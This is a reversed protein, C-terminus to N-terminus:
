QKCFKKESLIEDLVSTESIMTVSPSCLPPLFGSLEIDQIDLREFVPITNSFATSVKPLRDFLRQENYVALSTSSLLQEFFHDPSWTREACPLKLAGYPIIPLCKDHEEIGKVIAVMRSWSQTLREQLELFQEKAAVMMAAQRSKAQAMITSRSPCTRADSLGNRSGFLRSERTPDTSKSKEPMYLEDAELLRKSVRLIRERYLGSSRNLRSGEERRGHQEKQDHDGRMRNAIAESLVRLTADSEEGRKKLIYELAWPDSLGGKQKFAKISAEKHEPTCWSAKSDDASSAKSDNASRQQHFNDIVYRKSSSSSSPFTSIQTKKNRSPVNCVSHVPAARRAAEMVPGALSEKRGRARGDGLASRAKESDDGPGLDGFECLISKLSIPHLFKIISFPGRRGRLFRPEFQSQLMRGIVSLKTKNKRSEQIQEVAADGVIGLLMSLLLIVTFLPLIFIMLQSVFMLMVSNSNKSVRKMATITPVDISGAFNVALTSTARYLSSVSEIQAGFFIVIVAALAVCMAILVAFFHLLDVSCAMLVAALGRFRPLYSTEAVIMLVLSITSLALMKNSSTLINEAEDIADLSGGFGQVGSLDKPLPWRLDGAPDESVIGYEAPDEIAAVSAAADKAGDEISEATGDNAVRKTMMFNAPYYLDELLDYHAELQLGSQTWLCYLGLSLTFLAHLSWVIQVQRMPNLVLAAMSGQFCIGRIHFNVHPYECLMRDYFVFLQSIIERIFFLFLLLLWTSYWISLTTFEEDIYFFSYPTTHTLVTFTGSGRTRRFEVRVNSLVLDDANWVLLRVKLAQTQEDLYLGQYLMSLLQLARAGTVGADFYFPYGGDDFGGVNLGEFPHLTHRGERLDTGSLNYYTGAFLNARYMNSSPRFVPDSGFPHHNGASEIFCPAELSRFRNTCENSSTARYQMLM